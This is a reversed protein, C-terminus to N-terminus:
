GGSLRQRFTDASIGEIAVVKERSSEGRLLTVARKPLGLREALLALLAANAAGDVPPAMLWARLTEGELTLANRRARPTVRVAVILRSGDERIGQYSASKTHARPRGAM